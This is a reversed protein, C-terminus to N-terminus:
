KIRQIFADDRLQALYGDAYSGLRRAFLQQTVDERTLQENQKETRACLMILVGGDAGTQPPLIRYENADIRDLVDTLGRPLTNRPKTERQLQSEPANKFIGYLDNCQDLEEGLRSKQKGLDTGPSFFYRAYDLMVDKGAPPAVDELGRLQFLAIAGNVPIPATVDGPKMTLFLPGIQPPLNSLPLWDLRGGNDRSPAISFQRAAAEFETFGHMEAILKAQQESIAVVAPDTPLVIESVLVRASGTGTGLSLARDIEADNPRARGAFRSRVLDGWALNVRIYFQMTEPAIGVQGVAKLLDDASMNVRGAFDDLGVQVEEPTPTIGAQKAAALKLQDDILQDLAMKPSAGPTRLVSLLRTRQDVDFRTVGGDNVRAVTEFISQAQAPAPGLTPTGLLLTTALCATVTKRIQTM